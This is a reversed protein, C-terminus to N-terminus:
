NSCRKSLEAIVQHAREDLGRKALRRASLGKKLTREVQSLEVASSLFEFSHLGERIPEVHARDALEIDVIAFDELEEPVVVEKGGARRLLDIEAVLREEAGDVTVYGDVSYRVKELQGASALNLLDNYLAITIPLSIELREFNEQEPTRGKMELYYSDFGEDHVHRVRIQTMRFQPPFAQQGSLERLFVSLVDYLEPVFFSQSILKAPLHELAIRQKLQSLPLFYQLEREVTKSAVLPHRAEFPFRLQETAPAYVPLHHMDDFRIDEDDEELFKLALDAM